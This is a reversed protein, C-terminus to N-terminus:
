AAVSVALTPAREELKAKCNSAAVAVRLTLAFLRAKPLM